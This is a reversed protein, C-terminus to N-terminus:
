IDILSLDRIAEVVKTEVQKHLQPVSKMAEAKIAFLTLYFGYETLNYTSIYCGCLNSGTDCNSACTHHANTGNRYTYDVTNNISPVGYEQAFNGVSSAEFMTM